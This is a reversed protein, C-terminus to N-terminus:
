RPFWNVAEPALPVPISYRNKYWEDAFDKDFSPKEEMKGILGNVARKSFPWFNKLFSKEQGRTEGERQRRERENRIFSVLKM